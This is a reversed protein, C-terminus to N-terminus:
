LVARLKAILAPAPEIPLEVVQRNLASTYLALIVSFDTLAKDLNLPHLATEDELWDIMAETLAAQGLIDQDPYLHDGCEYNGHILTKWGWMTWGICGRTGYVAIRKHKNIPEGPNVRPANEGCRLMAGVGNDYEIAALSQDPAYHEKVNEQLGAGGAVQGFVTKPLAGPNFAGIAQLAHTGQYALNMGCSADILRLDGIAGDRVLRQLHQRRPHFHLQHNIAIKVPPKSAAFERIALYDEGEIALPKEVILAPIGASEAAEFIALRLNPPTNVHVLDPREKEFMERYDTYRAKIGYREGFADLKDRQRTSIAALKGRTIHQYAEAHGGARGGSVAVIATKLM